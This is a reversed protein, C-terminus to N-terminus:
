IRLLSLRTLLSKPSEPPPIVCLAYALRMSTPPEDAACRRGRRVLAGRVVLVIGVGAGLVALCVGAFGVGHAPAPDPHPAHGADAVVHEMAAAVHGGSVHTADVHEGPHGLGHMLVIGVLLAVALVFRGWWTAARPRRTVESEM